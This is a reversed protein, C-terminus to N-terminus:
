ERELVSVIRNFSLTPLSLSRSTVVPTEPLYTGQTRSDHYLTRRALTNFRSEVRARVVRVVVVV